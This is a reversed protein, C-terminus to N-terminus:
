RTLLPVFSLQKQFPAAILNETADAAHALKALGWSEAIMKLLSYHTYSTINSGEL